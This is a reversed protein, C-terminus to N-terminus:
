YNMAYPRITQGSSPRVRNHIRLHQHSRTGQHVCIEHEKLNLRDCQDCAYRKKDIQLMDSQLETENLEGKIESDNPDIDSQNEENGNTSNDNDEQM